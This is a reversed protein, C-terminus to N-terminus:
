ICKDEVSKITRYAYEVNLLTIELVFNLGHFVHVPSNCTGSGGPSSSSIM